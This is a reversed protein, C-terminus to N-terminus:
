EEYMKNLAAAMVMYMARLRMRVGRLVLSSLKPVVVVEAEMKVPHQKLM